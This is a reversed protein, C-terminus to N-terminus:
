LIEEVTQEGLEIREIVEPSFWVSDIQIGKTGRNGLYKRLQDEFIDKESAWRQTGFDKYDIDTRSFFINFPEMNKIHVTLKQTRRMMPATKEWEEHAKEQDSRPDWLWKLTNMIDEAIGM